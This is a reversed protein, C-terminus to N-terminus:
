MESSLVTNYCGTVSKWNNAAECAVQKKFCKSTKITLITGADCQM